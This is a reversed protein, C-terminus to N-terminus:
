PIFGQVLKGDVVSSCLEEHRLSKIETEAMVM